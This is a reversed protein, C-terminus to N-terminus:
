PDPVGGAWAWIILGMPLRVGSVTYINPAAQSAALWQQISASAPEMFPTDFGILCPSIKEQGSSGNATSVPLWKYYHRIYSM